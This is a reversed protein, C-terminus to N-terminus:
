HLPDAAAVDMAALLLMLAAAVTPCPPLLGDGFSRTMSLLLPLSAKRMFATGCRIAM